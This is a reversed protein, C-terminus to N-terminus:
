LADQISDVAEHSNEVTAHGSDVAKKTRSMMEEDHQVSRKQFLYANWIESKLGKLPNTKLEFKWYDILIKKLLTM